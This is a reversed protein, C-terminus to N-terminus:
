YRFVAKNVVRAKAHAARETEDRAKQEEVERRPADLEVLRAGEDIAARVQPALTKSFIVLGFTARFSQAFLNVSSKADEWRALVDETDIYTQVAASTIIMTVPRTARGYDVSLADVLDQETLGETREGDYSVVIRYLEGNCFGFLVHAVSDRDAPESTVSTVVPPTWELEQVLLPRQYVTKVATPSVAGAAAVESVTMGLRFGRYAAPDAARASSAFSLVVVAMVARSCTQELRTGM